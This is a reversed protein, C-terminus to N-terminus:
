AVQTVVIGCKGSDACCIQERGYASLRVQALRREKADLATVIPLRSEKDAADLGVHAVDIGLATEIGDRIDTGADTARGPVYRRVPMREARQAAAGADAQARHQEVSRCTQGPRDDLRVVLDVAHAARGARPGPARRVFAVEPESVTAADLPDDERVDRDPSLVQGRVEAAHVVVKLPLRVATGDLHTRARRRRVIIARVAVVVIQRELGHTAGEAELISSIEHLHSRAARTADAGSQM